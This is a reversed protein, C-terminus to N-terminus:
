CALNRQLRAIGKLHADSHLELCWLNVIGDEALGLTFRSIGTNPTVVNYDWAADDDAVEPFQCNLDEALHGIFERIFGAHSVLLVTPNTNKCDECM